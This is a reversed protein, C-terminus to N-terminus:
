QVSMIVKQGSTVIEYKYKLNAHKDVDDACKKEGKLYGMFSSISYKPPISVLM